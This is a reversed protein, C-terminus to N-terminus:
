ARSSVIALSAKVTMWEIMPSFILLGLYNMTNMLFDLLSMSLGDSFSKWLPKASTM